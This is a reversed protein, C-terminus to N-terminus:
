LIKVRLPTSEVVPWEVFKTTVKSTLENGTMLNDQGARMDFRPQRNTRKVLYRRVHMRIVPDLAAYGQKKGKRISITIFKRSVSAILNGCTCSFTTAHLCIRAHGVEMSNDCNEGSQHSIAGM